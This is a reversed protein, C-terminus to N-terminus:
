NRSRGQMQTARALEKPNTRLQIVPANCNAAIAVANAVKRRERAPLPLCDGAVNETSRHAPTVRHFDDHLVRNQAEPM